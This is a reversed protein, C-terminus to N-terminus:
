KKLVSSIINYISSVTCSKNIVKDVGLKILYNETEVDDFATASVVYYKNIKNSEELKRMIKVTESGNLFEMNEDIFICKIQKDKDKKILSLLDIGDSCELISFYNINM